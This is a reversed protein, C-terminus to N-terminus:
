EGSSLRAVLGGGPPVEVEIGLGDGRATAGSTAFAVAVAFGDGTPPTSTFYAYRHERGVLRPDHQPFEGPEVDVREDRVRGRVTDVTWRNVSPNVIFPHPPDFVSDVRCVDVVIYDGLRFANVGHFVYCPDIEFWKVDKDTGMRPMIGIRAGYDDDWGIPPLGEAMKDLNFVVPLDMFIAHERTIMFDHMMTGKPTPPGASM